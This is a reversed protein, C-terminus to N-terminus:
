WFDSFYFEEIIQNKRKQKENEKNLQDIKLSTNVINNVTSNGLTNVTINGKNNSELITSSSNNNINRYFVSYNM